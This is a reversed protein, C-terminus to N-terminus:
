RPSSSSGTVGGFGRGPGSTGSGGIVGGSQTQTLLNRYVMEAEVGSLGRAIAPGVVVREFPVPFAGQCLENYVTMRRIADLEPACSTKEIIVPCFTEPLLAAIKCLREQGRPNLAASGEVFDYHYLVLAAAEANTMQVRMSAYVSEGLPLRDYEEPRGSLCERIRSGRCTGHACSCSAPTTAAGSTAAPSAVMAPQSPRASDPAMLAPVPAPLEKTEPPLASGTQQPLAATHVPAAEQACITPRSTLAAALAGGLLLSKAVNM